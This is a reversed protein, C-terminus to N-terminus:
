RGVWEIIRSRFASRSFSRARAPVDAMDLALARQAAAALEDSGAEAPAAVGGRLEEVSERAGGQLNVLVPTGAAMAEVPMIGFDEIAMFVYLAAREYLAYLQADSVRGAFTVPVRRGSLQERILAEDPGGGAVVLPMELREAVDMALDFRKYAVLRSATLVFPESPLIDLVAREDGALADSWCPIATIREVDVPPHIVDAQRGWARAIRDAIYASNAAYRVRGDTAARDIRKLPLSGVRATLGQGRAEVEPAWIYRAPTHIYAFAQRGERAARGALHHGFAHSSALVAEHEGIPFDRWVAPLFPLSLAKRGRLRSGALRSERVPRDFTDPCNNWLCGAEADPFAALLERFVNESGGITEVWEHTILM